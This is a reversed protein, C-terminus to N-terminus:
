PLIDQKKPRGIQRTVWRGHRGAGLAVQLREGLDHAHEVNKGGDIAGQREGIYALAGAKGLARRMAQEGRHALGPQEVLIALAVAVPEPHLQELKAIDDEGVHIQVALCAGEHVRQCPLAALGHMEGHEEVAVPRQDNMAGVGDGSFPWGVARISCAGTWQVLTPLAIRAKWGGAVM